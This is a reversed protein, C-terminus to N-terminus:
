SFCFWRRRFHFARSNPDPSEGSFMQFYSAWFRLKWCLFVCHVFKPCCINQHSRNHRENVSNIPARAGMGGWPDPGTIFLVVGSVDYNTWEGWNGPLWRECLTPARRLIWAKELLQRRQQAVQGKHYGTISSPYENMWQWGRKLRIFLLFFLWDGVHLFGAHFLLNTTFGGLLFGKFFFLSVFLVVRSSFSM